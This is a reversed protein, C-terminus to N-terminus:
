ARTKSPRGDFPAGLGRKSGRQCDAAARAGKMSGAVCLRPIQWSVWTIIGFLERGQPDPSMVFAKESLHATFRSPNGLRCSGGHEIEHMRQHGDGAVLDKTQTSASPLGEM